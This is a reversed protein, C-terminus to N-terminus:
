EYFKELEIGTMPGVHRKIEIGNKILLFQPVGRINYKKTLGSNTDINIKGIVVRNKSLAFNELIDSM